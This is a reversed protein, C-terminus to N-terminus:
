IALVAALLTGSFAAVAVLAPVPESQMWRSLRRTALRGEPLLLAIAVLVVVYLSAMAPESIPAFQWHGVPASSFLAAIRLVTACVLWAPAGVLTGLGVVDLPLVLAALLTAIPVLPAALVNAPITWVSLTGFTAALLPATAIGIAASTIAPVVLAARLGQWPPTVQLAALLAVTALVSLRFSLSTLAAPSLAVMLAAAMVLVTVSHAPRGVRLAVLGALAMLAARV